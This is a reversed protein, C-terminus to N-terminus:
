GGNQHANHASWFLHQQAVALVAHAVTSGGQPATGGTLFGLASGAYEPLVEILGRELAPEVLDIRRQGQEVPRHAEQEEVASRRLHVREIGFRLQLLAGATPDEGRSRVRPVGRRVQLLALALLRKSERLHDPNNKSALAFICLLRTWHMM